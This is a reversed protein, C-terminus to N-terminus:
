VICQVALQWQAINSDLWMWSRCGIARDSHAKIARNLHVNIDLKHIHQTNGSRGDLHIRVRAAVLDLQRKITSAFAPMQKPELCSEAIGADSYHQSVLTYCM